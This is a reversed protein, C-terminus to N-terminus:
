FSLMEELLEEVARKIKAATVESCKVDIQLRYTQNIDSLPKEDLSMTFDSVRVFTKEDLVSFDDTLKWEPKLVSTGDDNFENGSGINITKSGNTAKVPIINKYKHGM